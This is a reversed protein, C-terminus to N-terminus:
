SNLILCSDLHPYQDQIQSLALIFRAKDQLATTASLYSFLGNVYQAIVENQLAETTLFDLVREKTIRGKHVRFLVSRFYYDLAVIREPQQSAYEKLLNSVYLQIVESPHQSLQILYQHGQADSFYRMVLQKGFQMVDPRVSDVLSILTETTWDSAEFQTSFFEFAFQRSDEWKADVLSLAKEKESKVKAVHNTYFQWVWQRVVLLESDALALIQRWTFESTRSYRYLWSAAAVQIDRYNAFLMPLLYNPELQDLHTEYPELLSLIYAHSGEFQPKSILVHVLQIWTSQLQSALYDQLGLQVVTAVITKNSHTLLLLITNWHKAVETPPVKLLLEMGIAQVEPLTHQAFDVCLSVPITEQAAKLAIIESALLANMPLSAELLYSVIKPHVLALQNGAIVKLRQIVHKALVNNTPTNEFVILSEITKEVVTKATADNVTLTNLLTIIWDHLTAQSNLILAILADAEKFYTTKNNEVQEKAWDLTPQHTVELLRLLLSNNKTFEEKRTTLLEYGFRQPIEFSHQLLRVVHELSFKVKIAEYDPHVQLGEIAFQHIIDMKADMLLQVYAQPYADWHEPFLEKRTVEVKEPEPTPTTIPAPAVPEKKSFFSKLTSLLGKEEKKDTNQATGNYPRVDAANYYWRDSIEYTKNHILELKNTVTRNPDNGYLIGSLLYCKSCAAYEITTFLYQRVDYLYQGYSPTETYKATYDDMTYQLLQQVALSLYTKGDTKEGLQTLYSMSNQQFYFKTHNSFGIASTAGRLEKGVNVRKNLSAIYQHTPYGDPDLSATRSFMPKEKELRYSLLALTKYDQRVQALKYLSRITKFYPPRFPITQLLTQIGESWQLNFSHLLYFPVFGELAIDQEVQITYFSFIAATNGETIVEQLTEPLLSFCKAKMENLIAEEETLQFLAEYAFWRVHDKLKLQLATTKFFLVAEKAKLQLLAWVSAYLQFTDGKHALKLIYPIAKEIGLEGAKWIVRSTKWSTKFSNTGELADQLRLLIRGETSTTDIHELIPLAITVEAETQYGKARKEYELKGFIKEADALAVSAPTKTGEKLANGRRGYRFNVVYEGNTLECLDIEYVKDSNGERFFLKCQQILKM